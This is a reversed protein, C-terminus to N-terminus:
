QLKKSNNKAEAIMQGMSKSQSAIKEKNKLEEIYPISVYGLAKNYVSFEHETFKEFDYRLSTIIKLFERFGIEGCVGEGEIIPKMEEISEKGEMDRCIEMFAFYVLMLNADNKIGQSKIKFNM